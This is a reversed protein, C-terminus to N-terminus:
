PSDLLIEPWFHRLATVTEPILRVPSLVFAASAANVPACHNFELNLHDSDFTEARLVIRRLLSQPIRETPRGRIKVVTMYGSFSPAFAIPLGFKQIYHLPNSWDISQNCMFWLATATQTYRTEDFRLWDISQNPVASASVRSIPQPCIM